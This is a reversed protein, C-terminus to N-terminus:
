ANNGAEVTTLSGPLWHSPKKYERTTAESFDILAETLLVDHIEQAKDMSVKALTSIHQTTTMTEVKRQQYEYQIANSVNACSGLGSKKRCIFMRWLGLIGLIRM